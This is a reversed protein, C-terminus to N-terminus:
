EKAVKLVRTNESTTIKVFYIGSSLAQIDINESKTNTIQRHMVERGEMNYITLSALPQTEAFSISFIGQTPNPYLRVNDLIAENATNSADPVEDGGTFATVVADDCPDSPPNGSCDRITIYKNIRLGTPTTVSIRYTWPLSPPDIGGFDLVLFASDNPGNISVNWHGPYDWEFNNDPDLTTACVNLNIGGNFGGDSDACIYSSGSIQYGQYHGLYPLGVAAWAALVAFYEDSCSGYLERTTKVTANRAQVYTPNSPLVTTLTEYLIHLAKERSIGYVTIGHFTDGDSLLYYWKTMIGASMHADAGPTYESYHDIKPDTSQKPYQLNVVFSTGGTSIWSNAGINASNNENFYLQAENGFIDCIGEYVANSNLLTINNNIERDIVHHTFEHGLTAATNFSDFASPRVGTVIVDANQRLFASANAANWGSIIYLPNGNNGSGSRNFKEKYFDWVSCAFIHGDFAVRQSMTDSAWPTESGTKTLYVYDLEFDNAFPNPLETQDFAVAQNYLSQPGFWGSPSGSELPEVDYTRIWKGGDHANLRYEDDGIHQDDITVSTFPAGSFVSTTGPSNHSNVRDGRKQITCDYSNFYYYMMSRNVTAEYVYTVYYEQEELIIEPDRPDNIDIPNPSFVTELYTIDEIPDGANGTVFNKGDEIECNQICILNESPVTFNTVYTDGCDIISQIFGAEEVPFGCFYQDFQEITQGVDDDRDVISKVFTIDPDLFILGRFQDDMVGRGDLGSLYYDNSSIVGSIHDLLFPNGSKLDLDSQSFSATFAFLFLYCTIILKLLKM